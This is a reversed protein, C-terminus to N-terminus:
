FEDAIQCEIESRRKHHEKCEDTILHPNGEQESKESLVSVSLLSDPKLPDKQKPGGINNLPTSSLM